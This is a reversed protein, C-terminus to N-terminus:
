KGLFDIVVVAQRALRRRATPTYDAMGTKSAARALSAGTTSGSNGRERRSLTPHPGSLTLFLARLESNGYASRFVEILSNSSSRM